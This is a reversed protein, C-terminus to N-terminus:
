RAAEPQAQGDLRLRALIEDGSIPGLHRDIEQGKADYFIQTPMMQIRYRSVLRRGEPSFLDVEVVSVRAGHDQVLRSLVIKMQKCSYCRDSGFEAVTPKGAQWAAQVPDAAEADAFVRPSPGTIWLAAGALVIVLTAM